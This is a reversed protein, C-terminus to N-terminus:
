YHMEVEGEVIFILDKFPKGYGVIEERESVLRFFINAILENQFGDSCVDFFYKFKKIFEKFVVSILQTQM